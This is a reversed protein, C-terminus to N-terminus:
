RESRAAPQPEARGAGAGSRPLPRRSGAEAALALGIVTWVKLDWVTSVFAGNVVLLTLAGLALARGTTDRGRWALAAVLWVLAGFAVVAGVGADVATQLLNNNAVARDIPGGEMDTVRLREGDSDVVAYGLNRPGVGLLPHALAVGGVARYLRLRTLNSGVAETQSQTDGLSRLTRSAYSLPQVGAATSVVILAAVAPAFVLIARRDALRRVGAARYCVLWTAPLIALFAVYAARTNALMGALVVVGAVLAPPLGIRRRAAVVDTLLLPVASIVYAGYYAPEYSLASIRHLGNLTGSYSLGQPLRLYGAALQYLGFCAVLFQAAVFCALARRVRTRTDCALVIALVPIIAAGLIVALQKAGQLPHGAVAAAAGYLLLLAGVTVLYPRPPWRLLAPSSRHLAARVLIAVLSAAFCFHSARLTLGGIQAVLLRDASALMLGAYVPYEPWRWAVAVVAAGAPLALVGGLGLDARGTAVILLAVALGLSASLAPPALHRASVANRPLVAHLTM